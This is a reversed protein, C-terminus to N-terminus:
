RCTQRRLAGVAPERMTREGGTLARLVRERDSLDDFTVDAGAAALREVPTRGTAVGVTWVGARVGAVVDGRTDGVLTTATVPIEVGYAAAVRERALTVLDARDDSDTGYAGVALDLLDALGFTELKVRASERTNGTVVTQVTGGDDHLAALIQAVGPLVRGRRRLEDARAVYEAAQHVAFQGFLGTALREDLGNIRLTQRFLAPETAGTVDAMRALPRGTVAEFATRYVERGVGGTEILTHDVDWLVLRSVSTRTRTSRM